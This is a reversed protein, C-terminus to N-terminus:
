GIPQGTRPQQRPFRILTAMAMAATAVMAVTHTAMAMDVVMDVTGVMHAATDVMTHRDTHRDMHIAMAMRPPRPQLLLTGPTHARTHTTVATHRHHMHTDMAMRLPRPRLLTGGMTAAMAAMAATAMASVATAATAATHTATATIDPASLSILCTPGGM